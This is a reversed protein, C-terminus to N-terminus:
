GENEPAAAAAAAIAERVIMADRLSAIDHTRIFDVRQSAAYLEAALSAPGAEAIERGTITRLFSKRSPSILVRVGFRDKLRRISALALLSPEPNSGLFYGLGPDIIIRDRGLGAAALAALRETFFADISAWVERPDTAVRTALGTRQVSHMVILSCDSAAFASYLDPAPFGHIDNLYGVGHAIAFRQTEPLYSDVAVPVGEALLPELVPELRRREEAASVPAADPNSAAPGLEVIDAGEARLRRAQALADDPALFRGGDSFSDETINVVGVLRPRAAPVPKNVSSGGGLRRIRKSKAVPLNAYSDGGTARLLIPAGM